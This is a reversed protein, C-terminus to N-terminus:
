PCLRPASFGRAIPIPRGLLTPLLESPQYRLRNLAHPVARPVPSWPDFADPKPFCPVHTCGLLIPRSLDGQRRAAFIPTSFVPYSSDYQSLIPSRGDGEQGEKASLGINLLVERFIHYCRGAAEQAGRRQLRGTSNSAICIKKNQAANGAPQLVVAAFYELVAGLTSSPELM